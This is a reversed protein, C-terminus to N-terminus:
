LLSLSIHVLGDVMSKKMPLGRNAFVAIMSSNQPLIEAEFTAVGHKIAMAQLQEFLRGAIGKGQFDEEVVFAVEARLPQEAPATMLYYRGCGIIITKNKVVTTVILGVEKEFNIETFTKLENDTLHEKFGLFRTYRSEKELEYFAELLMAKDDPRIARITIDRGDKLTTTKNFTSFDM